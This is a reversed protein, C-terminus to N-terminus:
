AGSAILEEGAQQYQEKLDPRLTRWILFQKRVMNLFNRTTRLWSAEDGSERRITIYVENVWEDDTPVTELRLYESVGLDYPALWVMAELQVRRGKEEEAVTLKVDDASFHGLSYDAHAEMYEKLFANIGLSQTGSVTFPLPVRLWDGEPEPLKWRREVDPVSMQAAKRAPFLTSLIVVAMILMTSAVASLSSYNLNLGPVLSFEVIIKSLTQGIVYGAVAGLVAYVCSEAIFLSAIHVPALGLSSYIGIEHVREYVAGLMTNLVIMAAILIPIFLGGAGKMGTTAVASCLYTTLKGTKPNKTGAYLNLEVREMLHDINKAVQDYSRFSLAISRLNGGTNMVLDFPLFLVADSTLHIYEELEGETVQQTQERRREQMLLYDVPTLQENDLDKISQLKKSDLMGIVPLDVGLATITAKGALVDAKTIHLVEAMGSPVICALVDDNRFWRGTLASKLRTVVKIEDPTMGVLATAAYRHRGSQLNVFSQDGVMASFYWARPAVPYKSRYENRVIRTTPEGLPNWSRDRILVGPYSPKKKLDIRNARTHSVVSTFSLVTFTLLILTICTLLTRAKRRRMNSIGLSFAAASASLRGVDASHMGGTEFKIQRMQEEFKQIVISSVTATLALIVFALLVILPTITIEFAPHVYRIVIFILLFIGSAGAIQKRIDPFAFFLREAFYAFPLLLALYFMIGKVVDNATAQVDPYAKAEYSWASRVDTLFRDYLKRDLAKQADDLYQRAARHLRDVRANEIGFKRFTEMRHEDLRWMDKAVQFPTNPIAPYDAIPFGIGTWEKETANILVFQLGLISAGMTIKVAKDQPAFIIACPEYYSVLPQRVPLSYGYQFPEAETETDYIHIEQLLSFRRQDIMDFINMARCRFLVVTLKKDALDLPIQLPYTEAGQTGRDPAFVIDGDSPGKRILDPYAAELLLRNRRELLKRRRAKRHEHALASQLREIAPTLKVDAFREPTYFDDEKLVVNIDEIVARVVDKPPAGKSPIGDLEKRHDPDLRDRLYTTLPDPAQQLRECFKRSSKIQKDSLEYRGSYTEFGEITWNGGHAKTNPLGLFLFEGKYNDLTVIDGRVGTLTKHPNFQPRAVCLTHPVPTRPMYDTDPNFRYMWGSLRSYTADLELDLIDDTASIIDWLVCAAVQAQSFLNDVRVRGDLDFPTDVLPRSDNVTVISIGPITALTAIESAFAFRGPLYTRWNKGKLPNVGDVWFEEQICSQLESSYAEELLLRNLRLRDAGGPHKGLLAKTGDSLKVDAFRGHTYLDGRSLLRNLDRVLAAKLSVPMPKKPSYRRLRDRTTRSLHAAVYKSLADAPRRLKAALNVRPKNGEATPDKLDDLHFRPNEVGFGFVPALHDYVTERSRKGIDSFQWQIASENQEVFHGKYFLGANQTQSSLDLAAFLRFRERLKKKADKQQKTDGPADVYRAFFHRTGELGLCHAGSALFMVSRRPPAAKLAKIIEFMAALGCSQEAGPALAPVVSMSDYAAEVVAFEDSYRRDTGAIVRQDSGPIWGVINVAPEMVWRMTCYLTGSLSRGQALAAKLREGRQRDLWFRPINIPTTLFKSEAEGRITTKPAIFVVAKAGLLLANFWDGGSNFDILVISGDVDKGNFQSVEGRHAYLLQGHLGEPPTQSTRVLNPWLSHLQITQVPSRPEPIPVPTALLAPRLNAPPPVAEPLPEDLVLKSGFDIPVPVIFQRSAVAEECGACLLLRNVERLRKGRPRSAMLRRTEPHLRVRAFAKSNYVLPGNLLKNFDEALANKVGKGVARDPHARKVLARTASSLNENLFRAFPDKGSKLRKVLTEADTFDAASFQLPGDFRQKEVRELGLEQFRRYVFEQAQRYGPYGVVRSGFSSLTAITRSLEDKDLQGLLKTYTGPPTPEAIKKRRALCPSAILLAALLVTGIATRKTM